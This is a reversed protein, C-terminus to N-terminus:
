KLRFNNSVNRNPTAADVSAIVGCSCAIIDDENPVMSSKCSPCLYIRYLSEQHLAVVKMKNVTARFSTLADKSVNIIIKENDFLDLASCTTTKSLFINLRIFVARTPISTLSDYFTITM